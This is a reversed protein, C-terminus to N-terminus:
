KDSLREHVDPCDCDMSDKLIIDAENLFEQFEDSGEGLEMLLSDDYTELKTKLFEEEDLGMYQELDQKNEVTESPAFIKYVNYALGIAIAFWVWKKIKYKETPEDNGKGDKTTEVNEAETSVMDDTNEPSNNNDKEM